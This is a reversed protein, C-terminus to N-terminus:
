RKRSLRAVYGPLPRLSRASQLVVNRWLRLIRSSFRARSRASRSYREWRYRAWFCQFHEHPLRAPCNCTWSRGRIPIRKPSGREVVLVPGPCLSQGCEPKMWPNRKIGSMAHLLNEVVGSIQPRFGSYFLLRPPPIPDLVDISVRITPSFSYERALLGQRLRVGGVACAEDNLAYTRQVTTM